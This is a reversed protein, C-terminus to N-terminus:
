LEPKSFQNMVTIKGNEIRFSEMYNTTVGNSGASDWILVWEHGEESVVSINVGVSYESFVGSRFAEDYITKFEEIGETTSGDGHYVIIDDSMYGYAKDIEIDMIAKHLNQVLLVNEQNGIKWEKQYTPEFPFDQSSKEMKSCASIFIITLLLLIKKM